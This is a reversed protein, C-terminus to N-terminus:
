RDSKLNGEGQTTDNTPRKYNKIVEVAVLVPRWDEIRNGDIRAGLTYRKGEELTLGIALGNDASRRRAGLYGIEDIPRLVATLHVYHQGPTVPFDYRNPSVNERIVVSAIMPVNEAGAGQPRKGDIAQLIVPYVKRAPESIDLVSIMAYPGDTARSAPFSACATLLSAWALFSGGLRHETCKPHKM